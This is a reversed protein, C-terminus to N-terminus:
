PVIELYDFAVSLDRPNGAGPDRAAARGSGEGQGEGAVPSPVPGGGAFRLTLVSAGPSWASAPVAVRHESWTRRPLELAALHEGDLWLEMRRPAAESGAFPLARLRIAADRPRGVPLGLEAQGGRAWQFTTGQQNTEPYSWGRGQLTLGRGDFDFRRGLAAFREEFVAGKGAAFRTRLLTALDPFFFLALDEERKKLVPVFQYMWARVENSRGYGATLLWGMPREDVVARARAATEWVHLFEVERGLPQLYYGLCIRPWPNAVVVPEGDLAVADFFRAVGRWDLKRYPDARAAALNPAALTALLVVAAMWTLLTRREPTGARLAKGALEALAAIGLAALLLFAPLASSTYRMDYWRGVSVLAAFSLTAPLAFMGATALTEGPRRLVFVSFGVAALALVAWSRKVTLVSPHGSTTMSALFMELSKGSLPAKFGPAAEIELQKESKEFTPVNIHSRSVYLGYCLALAALAAALYHLYPSRRLAHERRSWWLGLVSLAAFSALVPVSHLGVYAALLCSAYATFVATRTAKRLLTWLLVLALAMLLYYPRGERSYYVHLPSVALLFTAAVAALRGGLLRGTVAMLPLTLTGVVAPILRVGTEGPALALGLIQLGYYLGGNETGGMDRGTLFRLWPEDVLSRAIQLHLIEDLWLSPGGLDELRLVAGLAVIAALTARFVWREMGSHYGGPVIAPYGLV